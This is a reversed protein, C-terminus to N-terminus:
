SPWSWYYGSRTRHPSGRGRGRTGDRALWALWRIAQSREREDASRRDLVRDLLHERLDAVTPFMAPDTLPTPDQYAARALSLTFPNDLARATVSDPHQILYDGVRAWRDHQAGVQDRVLYDRAEYPDVPQVAIVTTNHIHGETIAQRYVDSRSSLVIRLGAGEWEVRALARRQATPAMEDLGDLFLAVRGTRLLEGAADPGYEPARLYPHDRYM